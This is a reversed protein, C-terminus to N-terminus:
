AQRLIKTIEFVVSPIKTSPEACVILPKRTSNNGVYGYCEEGCLEESICKLHKSEKWGAHDAPLDCPMGDCPGKTPDQIQIEDYAWAYINPNSESGLGSSVFKVWDRIDNSLSDQSINFEAKAMLDLCNWKNKINEFYCEDSKHWTGSCKDTIADPCKENVFPKERGTIPSM